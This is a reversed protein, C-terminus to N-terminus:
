VHARGIQAYIQAEQDILVVISYNGSFNDNFKIKMDWKVECASFILFVLLFKFLSKYKM